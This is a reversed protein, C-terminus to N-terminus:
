FKVNEKNSGDSKAVVLEVAPTAKTVVTNAKQKACVLCEYSEGPVSIWKRLTPAPCLDDHSNPFPYKPGHCAM